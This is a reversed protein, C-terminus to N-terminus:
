QALEPVPAAQARLARLIEDYVRRYEVDAGDWVRGLVAIDRAVVVVAVAESTANAWATRWRADLADVLEARTRERREEARRLRAELARIRLARTQRWMVESASM